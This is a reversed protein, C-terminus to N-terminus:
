ARKITQFYLHIESTPEISNDDLVMNDFMKKRKSTELMEM